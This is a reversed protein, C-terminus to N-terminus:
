CPTLIPEPCRTSFKPDSCYRGFPASAVVDEDLADPPLGDLVLLDVQMGVDRDALGSSGDAAEQLKIVGDPRVGAQFRLRGIMYIEVALWFRHCGLFLFKWKLFFCFSESRGPGRRESPAFSNRNCGFEPTGEHACVTLQHRSGGPVSKNNGTTGSLLMVSLNMLTTSKTARLAGLLWM